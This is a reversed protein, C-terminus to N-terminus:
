KTTKEQPQAEKKEVKKEVKEPTKEEVKKEEKNEAKVETKKVQSQAKTKEVAKKEEEIKKQFSEKKLAKKASYLKRRIERESLNRIFFARAKSFYSRKEVTIKDIWPSVVPFIREVAIGFKTRKYVTFMKNNQEGRIKLVIGKFKQIRTKDGEKIKYDVTVTDGISVKREKYLFSNSM